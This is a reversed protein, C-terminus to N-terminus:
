QITTVSQSLQSMIFNRELSIGSAIIMMLNITSRYLIYNYLFGSFLLHNSLWHEALM